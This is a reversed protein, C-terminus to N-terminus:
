DRHQAARIINLAGGARFWGIQEDNMTHICAIDVTSGDPKTITVTGSGNGERVVGFACSGAPQAAGTACPVEGVAHYDTGPVLADVTTVDPAPPSTHSVEPSSPTCAALWLAAFLVSPRRLRQKM